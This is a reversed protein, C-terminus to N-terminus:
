STCKGFNPSERKGCFWNTTYSCGLCDLTWDIVVPSTVDHHHHHHHHSAEKAITALALLGIIVIKM